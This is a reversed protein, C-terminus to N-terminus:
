KNTADALAKLNDPGAWRSGFAASEAVAGASGVALGGDCVASVATKVAAVSGGYRTTTTRAHTFAHILMIVAVFFIMVYM